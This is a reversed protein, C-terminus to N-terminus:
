AVKYMLVSTMGRSVAPTAHVANVVRMSTYADLFVAECPNLPLPFRANQQMWEQM